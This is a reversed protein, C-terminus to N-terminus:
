QLFLFVANQAYIKSSELICEPLKNVLKKRLKYTHTHTMRDNQYIFIYIYYLPAM